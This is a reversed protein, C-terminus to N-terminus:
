SNSKVTYNASILIYAKGFTLIFTCNMVFSYAVYLTYKRPQKGRTKRIEDMRTGMEGIYSSATVDAFAAGVGMLGRGVVVMWVGTAQGYFVGGVAYLACTFLILITYPIKEATIGAFIMSATEPISYAM